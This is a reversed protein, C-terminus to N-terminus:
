PGGHHRLSHLFEPSCPSLEIGGGLGEVWINMIRRAQCARAKIERETSVNIQGAAVLLKDINSNKFPTYAFFLSM